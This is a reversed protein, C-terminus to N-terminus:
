GVHFTSSLPSWYNEFKPHNQTIKPHYVSPSFVNTFHRRNDYRKGRRNVRVLTTHFGPLGRRKVTSIGDHARQTNTKIDIRNKNDFRFFLNFM